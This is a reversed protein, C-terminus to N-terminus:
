NVFQGVKSIWIQIKFKGCFLIGDSKSLVGREKFYFNELMTLITKKQELSLFAENKM